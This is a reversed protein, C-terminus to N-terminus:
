QRKARINEDIDFPMRFPLVQHVLAKLGIVVKSDRGHGIGFQDNLFTSGIYPIEHDSAEQRKPLLPHRSRKHKYVM